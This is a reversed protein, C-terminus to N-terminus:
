KEIVLFSKPPRSAPPERHYTRGKVEGPVVILLLGILLALATIDTM